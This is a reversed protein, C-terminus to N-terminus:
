VFQQKIWHNAIDTRCRRTFDLMNKFPKGDTDKLEAILNMFQGEDEVIMHQIEQKLDLAEEVTRLGEADM